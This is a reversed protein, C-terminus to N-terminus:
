LLKNKYNRSVPLETQSKDTLKVVWKRASLKLVEKIYKKNVLNSRHLRIFNNGLEKELETLSKSILYKKQFQHIETYKNDALLYYIDEIDIFIIRNALNVALRKPEPSSLDRILNQMQNQMIEQWHSNNQLQGLKDIARQLKIISLPKLLYDITNAEFARLAHEDYATTFIVLPLYNLKDLVQFGTLGPMQIDLFVLDPHLRNIKEVAEVGNVAKDIVVIKDEFGALLRELKQMAIPEDEVLVVKYQM